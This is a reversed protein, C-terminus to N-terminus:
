YKKKINIILRKNDKVVEDGFRENSQALRKWFEKDFVM